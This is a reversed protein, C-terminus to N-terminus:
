TLKGHFKITKIRGNHFEEKSYNYVKTEKHWLYEETLEAYGKYNKYGMMFGDKGATIWDADIEFKYAKEPEIQSIVINYPELATYDPYERDRLSLLAQQYMADQIYYRFMWFSREFQSAKDMMTKIDVFQITKQNHNIRLIDFKSKYGEFRVDSFPTTAEGEGWLEVHQFIVETNDDTLFADKTDIDEVLTKAMKKALHLDDLSIMERDGKIYHSKLYDWFSSVDFKKYYTEEKKVNDWLKLGKALQYVKSPLADDMTPFSTICADILLGLSATPKQMTVVFYKNEISEPDTLLDDVLSGIRVASNNSLDEQKEFISPGERDLASLKSYSLLNLAFYDKDKLKM